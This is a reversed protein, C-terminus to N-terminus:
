GEKDDEVVEIRYDEVDPEHLGYFEIIGQRTLNGIYETEIWHPTNWEKIRVRYRTQKEM